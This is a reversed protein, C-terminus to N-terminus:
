KALAERECRAYDAFFPIHYQAFFDRGGELLELARARDADSIEPPAVDRRCGGAFHIKRARLLDALNGPFGYAPRLPSGAAELKELEAIAVDVKDPRVVGAVWLCPGREWIQDDDGGPLCAAVERRAEDDDGAAWSLYALAARRLPRRGDPAMAASKRYLERAKELEGRLAHVKALGAVTDEGEYLRRAERAQALAEDLEGALALTTAYVGVADAEGAFAEAYRRGIELAEGTKGAYSLVASYHDYVRGGFAPDDGALVERFGAEAADYDRARYALEASWFALEPDLDAGAELLADRAEAPGASAQAIAADLLARDRDGPETERRVRRAAALAADLEPGIAAGLLIAYAHIRPHDPDVRAGARLSAAAKQNYFLNYERLAQDVYQDGPRSPAADPIAPPHSSAWWIGAGGAVVVALILGAALPWWRKPARGRQEILERVRDRLAAMDVFRDAPNKALSTEIVTAVARDVGDPLPPPPDRLVKEYLDDFDTGSFPPSGSVLEYAVVGVSFVESAESPQEGAFQEPAMYLPTGLLQGAQTMLLDSPSSSPSLALTDSIKEDVSPMTEDLAVPGSREVDTPREIVMDAAPPPTDDAGLLKALGFDLVRVAGEPTLMVNASKIDRHLVGRGHAFSLADAIEAIVSLARDVDLPGDEKVAAALTRGEVLEMVLVDEGDESVIDYLTVVNRHPIAAAAKAERVMRARREPSSHQRPLLKLAVLRDLREDRARWVEGMAGRGLISLLRYPGILRGPEAV